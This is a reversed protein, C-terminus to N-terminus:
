GRDQVQEYDQKFRKILHQKLLSKAPKLNFYANTSISYTIATGVGDYFGITKPFPGELKFPETAGSNWKWGMGLLYEQAMLAEQENECIFSVKEM